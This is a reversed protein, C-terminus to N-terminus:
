VSHVTFSMPCACGYGHTPRCSRACATARPRRLCRSRLATKCRRYRLSGCRILCLLPVQILEYLMPSCVLPASDGDLIRCHFRTSGGEPHHYTRVSHFGVPFINRFAHMIVHLSFHWRHVCVRTAFTRLPKIRGLAHVEVVGLMLPLM